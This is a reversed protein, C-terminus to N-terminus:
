GLKSFFYRSTLSIFVDDKPLVEEELVKYVSGFGGKGLKELEQFEEKYRSTNYNLLRQAELLQNSTTPCRFAPLSQSLSQSNIM